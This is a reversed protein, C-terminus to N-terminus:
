THDESSFLLLSGREKHGSTLAALEVLHVIMHKHGDRADDSVCVHQNVSTTDMSLLVEVTLSTGDVNLLEYAVEGILLVDVREVTAAAWETDREHVSAPIGDLAELKVARVWRAVVGCPFSVGSSLVAHVGDAREFIVVTFVKGELLGSYHGHFDKAFRHVHGLGVGLLELDTHDLACSRSLNLLSTNIASLEILEKSVRFYEFIDLSCPASNTM